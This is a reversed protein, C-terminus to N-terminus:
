NKPNSDSRVVRQQVLQRRRMLDDMYKAHMASHYDWMEYVNPPRTHRFYYAEMDLAWDNSSMIKQKFAGSPVNRSRGGPGAIRLEPPYVDYPYPFPRYPRRVFRDAADIPTSPASQM